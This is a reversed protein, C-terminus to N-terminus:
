KEDRGRARRKTANEREKASRGGGRASERRRWGMQRGTWSKRIPERRVSARVRVRRMGWGRPRRRRHAHPRTDAALPRNRSPPANPVRVTAHRWTHPCLPMCQRKPNPSSSSPHLAEAATHPLRSTSERSRQPPASQRLQRRRTDPGQSHSPRGPPGPLRLYLCLPGSHLCLPGSGNSKKKSRHQQRNAATPRGRSSRGGGRQQSM